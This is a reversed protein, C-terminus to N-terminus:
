CWTIVNTRCREIDDTKSSVLRLYRTPGSFFDSVHTPLPPPPTPSSLASSIRAPVASLGSSADSSRQAPASHAPDSSLAFQHPICNLHSSLPHPIMQSRLKIQAPIPVSIQASHLHSRRPDYANLHIHAPHLPARRGRVLTSLKASLSIM